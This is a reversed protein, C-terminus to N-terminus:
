ASQPSEISTQSPVSPQVSQTEDQRGTISEHQGAARERQQRQYQSIQDVHRLFELQTDTGKRKNCPWCCAVSNFYVYGISNVVRDIGMAGGVGCYFCNRSVLERYEAYTLTFGLTRDEAGRRCLEYSREPSCASCGSRQRGHECMPSSM